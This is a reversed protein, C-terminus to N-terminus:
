QVKYRYVQRGLNGDADIGEIVVRYSGPSGANYYEFSAHGSKDTIVNPQWYITSRLDALAKNTQPDDYQPSYFTRARYYGKPSYSAMGPSDNNRPMNRREKGTKSSIILVGHSAQSGYVSLYGASQLIEISNISAVDLNLVSIDELPLGDLLVLMEGGNRFSIAKEQLLHNRM